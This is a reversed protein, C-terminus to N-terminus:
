TDGPGAHDVLPPDPAFLSWRQRFLPELYDAALASWRLGLISLPNLYVATALFHGALAVVGLAAVLRAPTRPHM